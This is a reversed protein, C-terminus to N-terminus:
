WAGTAKDILDPRAGPPTKCGSKGHCRKCNAMGKVGFAAKKGGAHCKKNGCVKKKIEVGKADGFLVINNLKDANRVNNHCTACSLKDYGKYQLHGEHSFKGKRTKKGNVDYEMEIVGVRCAKRAKVVRDNIKKYPM